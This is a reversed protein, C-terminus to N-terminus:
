LPHGGQRLADIGEAASQLTDRHPCFYDRALVSPWGVGTRPQIPQWNGGRESWKGGDGVAFIRYTDPCRIAEFSVNEVGSPSRAVLVYRVEKQKYFVSLSTADIFYHFTATPGVYFEILNEKRPMAPPAPLRETQATGLHEPNRREWDSMPETSSCAALAAACLLAASARM